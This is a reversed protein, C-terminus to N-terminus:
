EGKKRNKKHFSLKANVKIDYKDLIKDIEKTPNLTSLYKAFESKVSALLDNKQNKAQELLGSVIDKPLPLDQVRNRIADETMFAAEIGFSALKKFLDSPGKFEKRGKEDRGDRDDDMKQTEKKEKETGM